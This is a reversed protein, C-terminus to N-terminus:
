HLLTEIYERRQLSPWTFSFQKNTQKDRTFFYRFRSKALFRKQPNKSVSLVFWLLIGNSQPLVSSPASPPLHRSMRPWFSMSVSKRWFHNKSTELAPFEIKTLLSEKVNGSPALVFWLQVGDSLPSLPAVIWLLDFFCGTALLMFVDKSECLLSSINIVRSLVKDDKDV